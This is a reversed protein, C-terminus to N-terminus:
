SKDYFDKPLRMEFPYIKERHTINERGKLFHFFFFVITVDLACHVNATKGASLMFKLKRWEIVTVDISDFRIDCM